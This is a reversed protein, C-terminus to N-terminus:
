QNEVVVRHLEFTTGAENTLTLTFGNNSVAFSFTDVQGFSDTLVLNNFFAPEFGQEVEYTGTRIVIAFCHDAPTCGGVQRYTGDANLELSGFGTGTYRGVLNTHHPPVIGGGLPLVGADAPAAVFLSVALAALAIIKNM